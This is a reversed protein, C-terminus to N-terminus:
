AVCQSTSPNCIKDGGTCDTASMCGVCFGGSPDCKPADRPCVSAMNATTCAPHCRHDAPWCSPSAAPCDTNAGCAACQGLSTVCVPTPQACDGDTECQVCGLSPDCKENGRCQDTGNVGCLASGAALGNSKAGSCAILAAVAVAALFGWPARAKSM